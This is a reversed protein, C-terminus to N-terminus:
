NLNNASCPRPLHENKTATTTTMVMAARTEETPLVHRDALVELVALGVDLPCSPFELRLLTIDVLKKHQQMDVLKWPSHPDFNSSVDACCKDEKMRVFWFANGMTIQLRIINEKSVVKYALPLLGSPRGLSTSAARFLSISCCTTSAEAPSHGGSYLLFNAIRASLHQWYSLFSRGSRALSAQPTRSSSRLAPPRGHRHGATRRGQEDWSAVAAAAAAAAFRSPSMAGAAASSSAVRPSSSSAVRMRPPRRPAAGDM